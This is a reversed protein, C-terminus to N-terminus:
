DDGEGWFIAWWICGFYALLIVVKLAVLTM